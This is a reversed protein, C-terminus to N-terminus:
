RPPASAPVTTGRGPTTPQSASHAALSVSDIFWGLGTRPHYGRGSLFQRLETHVAPSAHRLFEDCLGLLEATITERPICVPQADPDPLPQYEDGM